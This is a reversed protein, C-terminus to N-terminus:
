RISVCFTLFRNSTQPYFQMYIYVSHKLMRLSVYNILDHLRSQPTFQRTFRSVGMKDNAKFFILCIGLKIVMKSINLVAQNRLTM